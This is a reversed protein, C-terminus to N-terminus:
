KCVAYLAVDVISYSHNFILSDDDAPKILFSAISQDLGGGKSILRRCTFDM